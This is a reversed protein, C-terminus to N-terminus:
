LKKRKMPDKEEDSDIFPVIALLAFIDPQWIPHSPDWLLERFWVVVSLAL